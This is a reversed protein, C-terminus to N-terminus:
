QLPELIDIPPCHRVSCLRHKLIIKKEFETKQEILDNEDIDSGVDVSNLDHVMEDDLKGQSSMGVMTALRDIGFWKTAFHSGPYHCMADCYAKAQSGFFDKHNDVQVQNASNENCVLWLHVTKGNAQRWINCARMEHSKTDFNYECRLEGTKTCM